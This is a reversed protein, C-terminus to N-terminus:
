EDKMEKGRRGFQLNIRMGVNGSFNLFIRKNQATEFESKEWQDFRDISGDGETRKREM